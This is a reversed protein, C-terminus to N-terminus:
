HFKGTFSDRLIYKLIEVDVPLLQEGILNLFDKMDIGAM